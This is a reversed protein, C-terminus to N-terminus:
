DVTISGCGYLGMLNLPLYSLNEPPHNLLQIFGSAHNEDIDELLKKLQYESIKYLPGFLPTKGLELEIAHDDDRHPPLCYANSPSFINALDRYKKPITSEKLFEDLKELQVQM